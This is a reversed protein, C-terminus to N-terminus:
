IFNNNQYKWLNAYKGDQKLLDDHTGVEVISGKDMVLIQNMINLTSLRHAICLVTKNRILNEISKQIFRESEVDLSATAEDLIVIPTDFLLSRAIGIRQRQGGSLKVGREGVKTNLKDPLGEVFKWLYANKLANKIQADSFKKGLTLNMLVTDNLLLTDQDVISIAELLSSHKLDLIDVGGVFVQRKDPYFVRLLTSVLTSKGAGSKGVLGLKTGYPIKLNIDKLLLQKDKSLTLNRFEIDFNDVKSVARSSDQEDLPEFIRSVGEEIVAINGRVEPYNKALSLVRSKYTHVYLYLVTIDGITASGNQVFRFLFIFVLVEMGLVLMNVSMDFNQYLNWRKVTSTELNKFLKSFRVNESKELNFNRVVKINAIYDFLSGFSLAKLRQNVVNVDEIKPMFSLYVLYVLVGFAMFALGIYVSVWCAIGVIIVLELVKMYQKFSNGYVSFCKRLTQYNGLVKGSLKNQYYAFPQKLIYESAFIRMRLSPKNIVSVFMYDEVARFLNAILYVAVTIWIAQIFLERSGLLLADTLFKFTYTRFTLLGSSVFGLFFVFYFWKLNKGLFYRAFSKFDKEFPLKM